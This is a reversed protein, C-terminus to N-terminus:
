TDLFIPSMEDVSGCEALLLQLIFIYCLCRKQWLLARQGPTTTPNIDIYWTPSLMRDTRRLVKLLNSDGWHSSNGSLLPEVLWLQSCVL